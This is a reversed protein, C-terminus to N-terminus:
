RRSGSAREMLSLILWVLGLVGVGAGLCTLGLAVARAGYALAIVTSGGVVLFTVVAWFLRRQERRRRDRQDTPKRPESLRGPGM